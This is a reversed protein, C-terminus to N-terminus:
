EHPNVRIYINDLLNSDKSQFEVNEIGPINDWTILSSPDFLHPNTQPLGLSTILYEDMTLRPVTKIEIWDAVGNIFFIEINNKKYYAKDANATINGVGVPNVKLTINIKVVSDPKGLIGNVLDIPKNAISTINLVTDNKLKNNTCSLYILSISLILSITKFNM